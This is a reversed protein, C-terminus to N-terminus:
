NRILLLGESGPNLGFYFLENLAEAYTSSALDYREIGGWFQRFEPFIFFTM